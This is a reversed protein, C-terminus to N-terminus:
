HARGGPRRPMTAASHARLISGRLGAVYLETGRGEVCIPDWGLGIPEGSWLRGDRSTAIGHRGVAVFVNGTWAVDRLGDVPSVITEFSHGDETRLIIGGAIAPTSAVIVTETPSSAVDDFGKFGEMGSSMWDTGDASTMLLGQKGLAIFQDKWWTVRTFWNGAFPFTQSSWTRGSDRSTLVMPSIEDWDEGVAVLVEANGAIDYVEFPGLFEDRMLEWVTGDASRWIWGYNTGAWFEGNIWRVKHIFDDPDPSYLRQSVWQIGDLSVAVTNRYGAAVVTGRDGSMALDNLRDELPVTNTSTATWV